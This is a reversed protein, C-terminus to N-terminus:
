ACADSQVETRLAPVPMRRWRLWAGGAAVAWGWSCPLFLFRVMFEPHNATHNKFLVYWGLIGAQVALTLWSLLRWPALWAALLVGVLSLGILFPLWTESGFSLYSAKNLLAALAEQVGVARRGGGLRFMLQSRFAEIADWGFWALALLQKSVTAWVIGLGAAVGALLSRSLAAERQEAQRALGVAALPMVALFPMSALMDIVTGVFGVVFAGLGLQERSWGPERLVLWAAGLWVFLYGPSHSLLPGMFPVASFLAGFLAIMGLSVGAERSRRLAALAFGAIALYTAIHWLLRVGRVSLGAGLLLSAFSKNGHWYRYYPKYRVSGPKKVEARLSRCHGARRPPDLISAGIASRIPDSSRFLASELVLCDTYQDIGRRTDHWPYDKNTLEEDAFAEAVRARVREVPVLVALTSFVVALVPLGVWVAVWRATTGRWHGQRGNEGPEASSM